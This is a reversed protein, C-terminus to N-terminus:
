PEMSAHNGNLQGLLAFLGRAADMAQQGVDEGRALRDALSLVARLTETVGFAARAASLQQNDLAVDRTMPVDHNGAEHHHEHGTVPPQSGVLWGFDALFASMAAGGSLARDLPYLARALATALDSTLSM